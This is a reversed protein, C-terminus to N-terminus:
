GQGRGECRSVPCEYGPARSVLGLASTVLGLADSVRGDAGPVSMVLVRQSLRVESLCSMSLGLVVNM